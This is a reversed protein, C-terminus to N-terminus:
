SQNHLYRLLFIFMLISSSSCFMLCGILFYCGILTQKRCYSLPQAGPFVVSQIDVIEIRHVAFRHVGRQAVQSQEDGSERDSM